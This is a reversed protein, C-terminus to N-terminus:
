LVSQNKFISKIFKYIADWQWGLFISFFPIVWVFQRQLFWYHSKLDGNLILLIPLIILISLFLFQELKKGGPIVISVILSILFAYGLKNGILNGFMAKLFALPKEVPNPIYQFTFIDPYQSPPMWKENFSVYYVWLSLAFFLALLLPPTMMRVKNHRIFYILTVFLLPLLFIAVGYVHYNVTVIIFLGMLCIKAKGWSQAHELLRHALFLSALALVPLVAYPRFEFAHFILNMNFAMISFAVVYGVWSHFYYQGIKYLLWFGLVTILMHPIALGWKNMGFWHVFFYNLLYEGPFASFDGYKQPLWFPKFAGQMCHFQYIEDDWLKRDSLKIFRLYLGWSSIITVIFLNVNRKLFEM